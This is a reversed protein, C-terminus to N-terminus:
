TLKVFQVGDGTGVHRHDVDVRPFVGRFMNLAILLKPHSCASNAFNPYLRPAASRETPASIRQPLIPM